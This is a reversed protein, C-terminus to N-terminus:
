LKIGTDTTYFPTSTQNPDVKTVQRISLLDLPSVFSLGADICEAMPGRLDSGPSASKKKEKKKKFVFAKREM